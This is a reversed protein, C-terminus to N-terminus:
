PSQDWVVDYRRLARIFVRCLNTVDNALSIMYLSAFTVILLFLDSFLFDALLYSDRVLAPHDTLWLYSIGVLLFWGLVKFQVRKNRESM